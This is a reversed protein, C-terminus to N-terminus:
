VEPIALSGDPPNIIPPPADVHGAKWYPLLLTLQLEGDVREVKGAISPHLDGGNEIEAGDPLASFDISDGNITLVQGARSVRMTAFAAQPSFSIRM